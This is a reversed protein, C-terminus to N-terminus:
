FVKFGSEKINNKAIDSAEDLLDKIYKNKAYAQAMNYVGQKKFEELREKSNFKLFRDYKESYWDKIEEDTPIKYTNYHVVADVPLRDSLRGEIKPYGLCLMAVPVTKEPNNIIPQVEDTCLVGGNYFAGLGLSEAAICINHLCVIADWNSIFYTYATNVPVNEEGFAKFWRDTRYTDALAIIALPIGDLDMAHLKEPDDVVVLSYNQLNGGNAARIGTELLTTILDKDVKKDEFARISRHNKLTRIIENEM